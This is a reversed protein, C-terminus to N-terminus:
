HCIATEPRIILISAGVLIVSGYLVVVAVSKLGAMASAGRAQRQKTAPSGADDAVAWGGLVGSALVAILQTLLAAVAYYMANQAWCQPSGRRDSLQQARLWAGMFLVALMPCLKVVCEAAQLLRLGHQVLEDRKNPIGTVALAQALFVCTYVSFYLIAFAFASRMATSTPPTPRGEPARILLVSVIVGACGCCTMLLTLCRAGFVLKEATSMAGLGHRSSTGQPLSPSDPGDPNPNGGAQLDPGIRIGCARALFILLTHASVAVACEFFFLEAWPQPRGSKPDLQLARMRATMFLLCLMSAPSSAHACVQFCQEWLAVLRQAGSVHGERSTLTVGTGSLELCSRLIAQFLHVMFFLGTLWMTCLMAASVPPAYETEATTPDDWLDSPRVGLSRTDMTVVQVCVVSAGLYLGAVAVYRFLTLIGAMAPDRIEPLVLGTEEDVRIVEGTLVPVLLVLLTQAVVSWTCAEMAMETFEGPGGKGRTIQLARLHTGLFLVCIMPAYFVSDCAARLSLDCKTDGLRFVDAFARCVAASTYVIFYLASLSLICRTCVSLPYVMHDGPALVKVRVGDAIERQLGDVKDRIGYLDMKMASLMEALGRSGTERVINSELKEVQRWRLREEGHAEEHVKRKQLKDEADTAAERGVNDETQNGGKL